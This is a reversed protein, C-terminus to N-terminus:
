GQKFSFAHDRHSVCCSVSSRILLLNCYFVFEKFNHKINIGSPLCNVKLCKFLMHCSLIEKNSRVDIKKKERHKKHARSCVHIVKGIAQKKIEANAMLTSCIAFAKLLLFFFFPTFHDRSLRLFGRVYSGRTPHPSMSDMAAVICNRCQIYYIISVRTYLSKCNTLQQPNVTRSLPM